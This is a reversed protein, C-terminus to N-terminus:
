KSFLNLLASNGFGKEPAVSPRRFAYPMLDFGSTYQETDQKYEESDSVDLDTEIQNNLPLLENLMTPIVNDMDNNYYKLTISDPMKWRVLGLHEDNATKYLVFETYDINTTLGWSESASYKLSAQCKNKKDFSPVAYAKIDRKQLQDLITEQFNPITVEKNNVVCISDIKEPSKVINVKTSACGSIFLICFGLFIIKKM